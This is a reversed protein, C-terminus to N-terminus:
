LSTNKAGQLGLCLGFPMLAGNRLHDMHPSQSNLVVFLDGLGRGSVFMVHGAGSIHIEKYLPGSLGQKCCKGALSSLPLIDVASTMTAPTSSVISTKRPLCRESYKIGGKEFCIMM